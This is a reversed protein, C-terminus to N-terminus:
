VELTETLEKLFSHNLDLLFRLNRPLLTLQPSSHINVVQWKNQLSWSPQNALLFTSLIILSLLLYQLLNLVSTYIGEDSEIIATWYKNWGANEKEQLHCAWVKQRHLYISLKKKWSFIKSTARKPTNCYDNLLPAAVESFSASSSLFTHRM